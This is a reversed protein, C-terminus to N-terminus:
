RTRLKGIRPHSATASSLFHRHVLRVEFESADVHIGAPRRGGAVRRADLLLNQRAVEVLGALHSAARPQQAEIGADVGGRWEHVVVPLLDVQHRAVEDDAVIGLALAAFWEVSRGIGAARGADVMTWELGIAAAEEVFNVIVVLALLLVDYGPHLGQRAEQRAMTAIRPCAKRLVWGSPATM